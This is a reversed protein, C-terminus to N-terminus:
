PVFEPGPNKIREWLIWRVWQSYFDSDHVGVFRQRLAQLAGRDIPEIEGTANVHKGGVAEVLDCFWAPVPVPVTVIETIRLADKEAFSLFRRGDPSFEVAIIQGGNELPESLPYGSASDWLRVLGDKSGTLVRKGDPSFSAITVRDRHRM